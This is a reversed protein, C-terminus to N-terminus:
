YSLKVRFITESDPSKKVPESTKAVALLNDNIDFLGITTIYSRTQNDTGSTVVIRGDSDVFTPNTSYNFDANLARCFYITSHLNTQNQFQLDNVRKRLGDVINDFTGSTVVENLNTNSSGSWYISETNTPPLFVGTIFAVIGANYYVKGVKTSGSFLDSEDGATAVKFTSAAGADTLALVDDVAGTVQLTLSLDGKKVEDKYIRRKFLLFFLEHFTVDGFEFLSDKNGLLLQAMQKYIRQKEDVLFTESFGVHLSASSFGFTMDLLASSSVSTPAGDFVTEWFGGSVASGSTINEYTKIADAGSFLSGTVPIVENIASLQTSVDTSQDFEKFSITLLIM